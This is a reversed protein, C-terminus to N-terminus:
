SSLTLRFQVIMQEESTNPGKKGLEERLLLAFTVCFFLPLVSLLSPLRGDGTGMRM